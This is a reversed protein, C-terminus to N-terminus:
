FIPVWSRATPRLPRGLGPAGALARALACADFRITGAVSAERARAAGTISSGQALTLRGTALVAGTFAAGPALDLDGDVVLVGQGAGSVTLSAPAFILPFDEGCLPGPDAPDGPMEAEAADCVGAAPSDPAALARIEVQDALRALDAMGLPGLGSFAASDGLHAAIDLPPAGDLVADPHAQVLAADPIALGPRPGGAVGLVLDPACESSARGAPLDSGGTGDVVAGALLAVPGGATLAAAFDPALEAPLLTRALLGVAAHAAAGPPPGSWAEARILFLGGALREVRASAGVDPGLADPPLPVDAAAGPALHRHAAANWGVIAARAASEAAARARIAHLLARSVRAEQTSVFLLGTGLTGLALLVLLALLLAFGSAGCANLDHAPPIQRRRPAARLGARPPRM